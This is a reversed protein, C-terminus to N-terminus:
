TISFEIGISGRFSLQSGTVHSRGVVLSQLDSSTPHLYVDVLLKETRMLGRVARPRKCLLV